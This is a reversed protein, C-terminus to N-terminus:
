VGFAALTKLVEETTSHQTGVKMRGSSPRAASQGRPAAAAAAALQFLQRRDMTCMFRNIITSNETTQMTRLLVGSFIIRSVSEPGNLSSPTANTISSCLADFTAAWPIVT